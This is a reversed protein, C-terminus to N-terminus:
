MAVECWYGQGRVTKIGDFGPLKQRLRKIHTDVTRLDGYYDYGWVLNLLQERTFVQNPSQFFVSLLKYEMPSLELPMEDYYFQHKLPHWMFPGKIVPKEPHNRKLLVHVRAILEKMSFPKTMYDDAGLEFGLLKDDELSKASLIIVPTNTAKFEKLLMYGSKGPLMLDLIVVDVSADFRASADDGTHASILTFSKEVLADHILRHLKVDDEVLLITAM